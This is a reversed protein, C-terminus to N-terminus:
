IAQRQPSSDLQVPNQNFNSTITNKINLTPLTYAIITSTHLPTGIGTPIPTEPRQLLIPRPTTSYAFNHRHQPASQPLLQPSRPTACFPMCVAFVFLRACSLRVCSLRVCSLWSSPFLARRFSQRLPLTSSWQRTSGVKWFRIIAKDWNGNIKRSLSILLSGLLSLWACFCILEHEFLRNQVSANPSAGNDTWVCVCGIEFKWKGMWELQRIGVACYYGSYLLPKRGVKCQAALECRQVFLGSPSCISTDSWPIYVWKERRKSRSLCWMKM